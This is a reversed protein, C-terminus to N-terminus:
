KRLRIRIVGFFFIILGIIIILFITLLLIIPEKGMKYIITELPTKTEQSTKGLIEAATPPLTKVLVKSEEEKEQICKEITLELKETDIPKNKDYYVNVNITYIGPRLTNTIDLTFVNEYEADEDTGDELEIEQTLEIGINKNEVEIKADEEDRGLNLVNVEVNAKRECSLTSPSLSAKTIIINHKDKRVTLTLGWEVMHINNNQDEGRVEINVDYDDDDVRLPLKFDLNVKETDGADLDGIDISEELDDGDDINEITIAVEIDKITKDWVNKFEVKFEIGSEQKAEEKIRRGDNTITDKKGDVEAIVRIIELTSDYTPTQPPQEEDPPLGINDLWGAFVSVLLVLLIIPILILKRYSM